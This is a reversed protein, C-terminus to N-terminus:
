HQSVPTADVLPVDVSPSVAEARRAPPAAQDNGVVMSYNCVGRLSAPLGRESDVTNFILGLPRLTAGPESSRDVSVCAQM